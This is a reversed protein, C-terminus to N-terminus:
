RVRIRGDLFPAFRNIIEVRLVEIICTIIFGIIFKLEPSNFVKGSGWVCVKYIPFHTLLIVLSNRGFFELFVNQKLGFVICCLASIGIVANIVFWVGNGFDNRYMLINTNKKCSFWLGCFGIMGIVLLVLRFLASLHKKSFNLIHHGYLVGFSYFSYGVLAIAINNEKGKIIRAYGLGIVLLIISVLIHIAHKSININKRSDLFNDIVYYMISIYLLSILFWFGAFYLQNAYDDKNILYLVLFIIVNFISYLLVPALLSATRKALYDITNRKKYTFGSAFFFLPMHFSLILASLAYDVCGSASMCHQFMVLLIGIGKICDLECIRNVTILKTGSENAKSHIGEKQNPSNLLMGM